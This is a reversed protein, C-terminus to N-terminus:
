ALKGDSYDQPTTGPAALAFGQTINSCGVVNPGPPLPPIADAHVVTASTFLLTLAVAAITPWSRRHIMTRSWSALDSNRKDESKGIRVVPASPFASYSPASLVNASM